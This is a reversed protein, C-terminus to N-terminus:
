SHRAAIPAIVLDPWSHPHDPTFVLRLRVLRPPAAGSWESAWASGRPSTVFYALDLRAVGELLIADSPPPPPGIRTAHPRAAWRLALRHQGDVRLSIDARRSLTDGSAAPLEGVFRLAHTTGAAEPGGADLGAPEMHEILSRLTRDTSDLDGIEAAERSQRGFAQIGLRLAQALGLILFGMVAVVVLLELLTFGATPKRAM